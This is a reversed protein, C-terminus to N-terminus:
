GKNGSWDARYRLVMDRVRRYVASTARVDHANYEAIKLIEGRAYAPAVEAGSMAQKPSEIGLAWCVVDLKSPGRDRQTLLEFLDLHPRLSFRQSILDVRAPIGHILSRAVLFPLDFSRGNFSVVTEARSALAWFNSLLDAESVPRFWAPTSPLQLDPPPVAFVTVDDVSETTEGDGIALSVVQGFFPSLGMMAGPEMDKRNASTTLSEVVSVPLERLDHAPVTEIDFVLTKCVLDEIAALAPDFIQDLDLGEPREGPQLPRMQEVVLQPKGNWPKLWGRVKVLSQAPLEKATQMAKQSESWIKAELVSHVDALELVLFPKGQQTKFEKVSRLMAFVDWPHGAETLAALHPALPVHQASEDDNM